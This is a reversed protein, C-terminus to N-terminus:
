TDTSLGNDTKVQKGDNKRQKMSGRDGQDIMDRGPRTATPSREAFVLRTLRQMGFSIRTHVRLSDDNDGNVRLLVGFWQKNSVVLLGGNVMSLGGNVMLLGGNAMLLGGNVM